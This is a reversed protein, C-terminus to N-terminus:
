PLPADARPRIVSLAAGVFCPPPAGIIRTYDSLRFSLMEATANPGVLRAIVPLMQRQDSMLDTGLAWAAAFDHQALAAEHMAAIRPLLTAELTAADAPLMAVTAAPSYGHGLHVLDGTAVCVADASVVPRLAAALTAAVEFSGGPSRTASIFVRTVPPPRVGRSQAAAGLLAIFLDLSFEGGLLSANERVWEAPAPLAGEDVPGFPTVVTGRAVFAGGLQRFAGEAVAAASDTNLGMASDARLAAAADTLMAAHTARFAAPLTGGHLVGLAVVQRAGRQLISQAVRAIPGASDRLTVHPFSVIGGARLAAEIAGDGSAHREIANRVASQGGPSELEAAYFRKWDV